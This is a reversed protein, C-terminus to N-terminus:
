GAKRRYRRTLPPIQMMEVVARQATTIGTNSIWTYVDMLQWYLITEDEDTENRFSEQSTNESNETLTVSRSTTESKSLNASISASIPGWGASVSTGLSESVNEMSSSTDVRGSAHSVTILRSAGPALSYSSSSRKWYQEHILNDWTGAQDATRAALGVVIRPGDPPILIDDTPSPPPGIDNPAVLDRWDAGAYPLEALMQELSRERRPLVHLAPLQADAGTSALSTVEHAAIFGGTSTSTFIVVDGPYTGPWRESDATLTLNSYPPMAPLHTAGSFMLELWFKPQVPINTNNRITIREIRRTFDIEAKFSGDLLARYLAKM